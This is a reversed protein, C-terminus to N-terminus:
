QNALDGDTMTEIVIGGFRASEARCKVADIYCIHSEYKEKTETVIAEFGGSMSTNFFSLKRGQADCAKSYCNNCVARPYRAFYRTPTSCIPCPYFETNSM